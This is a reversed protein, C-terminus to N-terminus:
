GHEPLARHAGAAEVRGLAAGSQFATRPPTDTINGVPCDLGFISSTNPVPEEIQPSRRSRSVSAGAASAATLQGVPRFGRGARSPSYLPFIEEAQKQMQGAQKM